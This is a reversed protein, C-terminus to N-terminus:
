AIRAPVPITERFSGLLDLLSKLRENMFQIELEYVRLRHASKRRGALLIYDLIFMSVSRVRM